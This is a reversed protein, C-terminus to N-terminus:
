ISSTIHVGNVLNGLNSGNGNNYTVVDGTHLDSYPGLSLLTVNGTPDFTITNTTILGFLSQTFSQQTGAGATSGLAELGTSGGAMADAASDYLTFTGNGQSNVYYNSGDQLDGIASHGNVHYTVETGTTLGTGLGLFITNASTDVVPVSTTALAISRQAMGAQVMLGGSTIVTNNGIYAENTVNAVNIGVGVGVGTGGSTTTAAGTAFGQGDVQAATVVSLLGTATVTLGDPIYAEATGDEVNVAVAGAVSVSGNSSQAKNNSDSGETGKANSDSGKVESDGYGSQTKTTNDVSQNNPNSDSHQGSGDDQQGGAVSAAATSDSSSLTTASFAITGNAATADTTKLNRGTTALSNDNVVTVTVTIGVGTGTSQTAGSANTEVLDTLSATASFAGTLSILGGTGLTADTDNDTIAIAIVPTVATSGSAGGQTTTTMAQTSTATMSLNNAGTLVVGNTIQALTSTQAYDLSLSIGVGLNAGSGGGNAPVASATVASATQANLTVNGGGTVTINPVGPSSSPQTYGLDAETDTIAINIALSGAVGTSGGGAGSTASANYDDSANVMTASGAGVSSLTMLGTTGGAVADTYNDYLAVTGDAQVNVYYTTNNTLGGIAAGGNTEYTVADGTALSTVGLNVTNPTATTSNSLNVATAPNFAFSQNAQDAEVDLGGVKFTSGGLYALNTDKVFNVAVAAGVSTGTSSGSGALFYQGDSGKSTLKELGTSGGAQADAASDYLEISGGNVVDVYYTGGNSLGAIPAGGQGEFYTVSDGTKFPSSTGLNIINNSTDVASPDFSTANTVAAGTANASGDINAASKVTLVGGATITRGDAIYAQSTGEEVNVAVAGAVSVSGDSTNASPASDGETGKTSDTGTAKKDQTSATSGAEGMQSSTESNPSQADSGGSQGGGVVSASANSESGSIATSLFSMAGGTTINRGTTATSNDNIVNIAISIGVGTKDSKTNGAANTSVTNTLSSTAALAGGITLLAGTGLWASNNDDAVSVAVIPTIATSGAGGGTADTQMTHVGIATLSLGNAGTMTANNNIFAENQDQGYDIAISAGIGVGASTGGKDSPLAKASNAVNDHLEFTVNPSGTLTLVANQDLYAEHTLVTVNIALSGAVGVSSSDGVGSTADASFSSPSPELVAVDLSGATVSVTGTIYATDTRDAVNIAVAVGVGVTGAQTFEGDATVPVVDVSSASVTAAGTGANVSAGTGLFASTTGTDTSVAVAGAVTINQGAGTSADNNALTNGSSNPDSSDSGSSGGPSSMATTTITRNSAATVNVSSGSVTADAVSATTNGTIVSVAVAGGATGHSADAVTSSQLTSSASLTDSTKASVNAGGDVTMAAGSGYTTSLVAADTSGSGGSAAPSAASITVNTSAVADVAGTTSTVTSNGDITVSPAASGAIVVINVTAGSASATLNGNVSATIDVDGGSAQLVSGTNDLNPGIAINATSFSTIVAGKVASMGTGTTNVALTSNANLTLAGATTTLDAGALNIGTDANAFLGTSLLDSATQASTLTLNTATISANADIVSSSEITLGYGLTGSSNQLNVTDTKAEPTGETSM